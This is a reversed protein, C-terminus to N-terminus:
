NSIVEHVKSEKRHVVCFMSLKVNCSQLGSEFDYDYITSHDETCIFVDLMADTCDIDCCCNPDCLNIQIPKSSCILSLQM